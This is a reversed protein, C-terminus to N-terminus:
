CEEPAPKGADLATRFSAGCGCTATANPNNMTFGGSMGSEEFDIELGDILRLSDKDVVVKLDNVDMYVDDETEADDFGMAYSFGSCGGAQVGLRLFMGPIEQEALMEKLKDSASDSINIM